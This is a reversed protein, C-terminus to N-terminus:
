EEVFDPPRSSVIRKERLPARRIRQKSEPGPQAV